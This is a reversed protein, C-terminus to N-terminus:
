SRLPLRYPLDDIGGPCHRGAWPDGVPEAGAVMPVVQGLIRKGDEALKQEARRLHFDRLHVLDGM